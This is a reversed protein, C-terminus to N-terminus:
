GFKVTCNTFYSYQLRNIIFLDIELIAVKGVNNRLIFAKFKSGSLSQTRLNCGSLNVNFFCQKIIYGM